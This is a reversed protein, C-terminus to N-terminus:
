LCYVLLLNKTMDPVYLVEHLDLVEGTPMFFSISGLRTVLYKGDDGLDV